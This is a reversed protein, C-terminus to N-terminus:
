AAVSLMRVKAETLLNELRDKADTGNHYPLLGAVYQQSLRGKIAAEVLATERMSPDHGLSVTWVVPKGVERSERNLREYSNKFAMRAGTKDGEELLSRADFFAQSIDETWVVTASESEAAIALAWAEDAELRGDNANIRQIIAALTLRGTLEKRCKNLADLVAPLPYAQLDAEMAIMSSKSLQTGTLEAAVGIAELLNM